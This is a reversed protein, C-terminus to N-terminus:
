LDDNGTRCYKLSTPYAKLSRGSTGIRMEVRRALKFKCSISRSQRFSITENSSPFSSSMSRKLSKTSPFISITLLFSPERIAIKQGSSPAASCVNHLLSTGTLLSSSSSSSAGGFFFRPRGGFRTSSALALCSPLGAFFLRPRGGFFSPLAICSSCVSVNNLLSTFAGTLFSCPSSVGALFLRPRGGFITLFSCPSSVGALVLRPRRGFVTLFSCPSSVGALFFRPRGGFFM